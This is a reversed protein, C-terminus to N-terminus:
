VNSFIRKFINYNQEDRPSCYVAIVIKKFKGMNDLITDKMARAVINPDNKFAGCGFAGIVLCENKEQYAIDIIRQLRLRHIEYLEKQTLSIVQRSENKNWM